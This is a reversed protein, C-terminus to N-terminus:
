NVEGFEKRIIFSGDFFHGLARAPLRWFPNAHHTATLQMSPSVPEPYGSLSISVYIEWGAYRSVCM